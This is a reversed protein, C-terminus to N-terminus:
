EKHNEAVCIAAPSEPTFTEGKYSGFWQQNTYGSTLLAQELQTKTAPFLRCEGTQSTNDALNQLKTIFRIATNNEMWQYQRLFRIDNREIVPFDPLYAPSLRDFNVVQFIFRGGPALLRHVDAFFDEIADLDTLHAMTNGLCLVATFSNAPFHTGATEMGAPYFPIEGNALVKAQVVMERDPEMGVASYGLESLTRCMEGTACGVDLIASDEDPGALCKRIFDLTIPKLPFIDEYVSALREYM